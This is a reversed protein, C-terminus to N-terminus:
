KALADVKTRNKFLYSCLTSSIFMDPTVFLLNTDEMGLQFVPIMKPYIVIQCILIPFVLYVVVLYLNIWHIANDVKQFLVARTM